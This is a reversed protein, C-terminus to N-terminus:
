IFVSHLLRSTVYSNYRLDRVKVLQQIFSRLSCYIQRWFPALRFNSANIGSPLIELSLPEKVWSSYQLRCSQVLSPWCGLQFNRSVGM